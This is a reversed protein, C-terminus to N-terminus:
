HVNEIKAFALQTLIWLSKSPDSKVDGPFEFLFRLPNEIPQNKSFTKPSFLKYTKGSTPRERVIMAAVSPSYLFAYVLKVLPLRNGLRLCYDTNQKDLREIAQGAYQGDPSGNKFTELHEKLQAITTEKSDRILLNHSLIACLSRMLYDDIRDQINPIVDWSGWISTVYSKVDRQYFYMFDFVHTLIENLEQYHIQIIEALANADEVHLSKDDPVQRAERELTLFCFLLFDQLQEYLNTRVPPKKLLNMLKQRGDPKCLDPLLAALIGDVFVHSFEHTLTLLSWGITNCASIVELPASLSFSTSRFGDRGSFCVVLPLRNLEDSGLTIEEPDPLHHQQWWPDSLGMSQFAKAHPPESKLAQIRTPFDSEEFAQHVYRRVNLLAQSALGIGLLSHTWFHCESQQIPSTGAFTQSSFRSLAANVNVLWQLKTVSHHDPRTLQQRLGQDLLLLEKTISPLYRNGKSLTTAVLARYEATTPKLEADITIAGLESIPALERTLCPSYQTECIVGSTIHWTEWPVDAHQELFRTLRRRALANEAVLLINYLGLTLYAAISPPIESPHLPGIFCLVTKPKSALDPAKSNNLSFIPSSRTGADWNKLADDLSSYIKVTHKTLCPTRQLALVFDCGTLKM